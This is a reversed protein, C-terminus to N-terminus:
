AWIVETKTTVVAGAKREGNDPFSSGDTYWTHDADRLPIDTLDPRTGHTEALIQLCEHQKPEEPLPLLTAPNLTVM